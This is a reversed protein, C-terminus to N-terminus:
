EVITVTLVVSDPEDLHDLVYDANVDEGSLLKVKYDGAQAFTHNPEAQTSTNEDGFDWRYDVSNESCNSFQVPEGVTATTPAWDFCAKPLNAVADDDSCSVVFIGIAVPFFYTQFGKM